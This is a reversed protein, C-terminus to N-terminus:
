QLQSATALRLSSSGLGPGLTASLLRVCCGGNSSDWLINLRDEHSLESSCSNCAEPLGQQQPHTLQAAAAQQAAAARRAVQQQQWLASQQQRRAEDEEVQRHHAELDALFKSPSTQARPGLDAAGGTAAIAAAAGSPCSAGRAPVASALPGGPAGRGGSGPRGHECGTPPARHQASLLAASAAASGISSLASNVGGGSVSYGGSFGGSFGDSSGGGASSGGGLSQKFSSSGGTSSSCGSGYPAGGASPSPSPGGGSSLVGSSLGGASGPFRGGSSAGGASSARSGGGRDSDSGRGPREAVCAHRVMGDPGLSPLAAGLTRQLVAAVQVESAGSARLLPQLVAPGLRASLAAFGELAVKQLREREEPALAADAPSGGGGGGSSGYGGTSSARSNTSSNRSVAPSRASCSLLTAVVRPVDLAESPFSLVAQARTPSLLTSVRVANFSWSPGM